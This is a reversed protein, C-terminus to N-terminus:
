LCKASGQAAITGTAAAMTGPISTPIVTKKSGLTGLLCQCTKHPGGMWWQCSVKDVDRQKESLQTELMAILSHLRQQEKSTESKEAELRQELVLIFLVNRM